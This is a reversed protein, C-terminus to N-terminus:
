ATGGDIVEPQGVLGYQLDNWNTLGDGIKFQLTDLEIAMEGQALIPNANTWEAADGRRFQIRTAM